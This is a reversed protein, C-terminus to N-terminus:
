RRLLGEVPLAVARPVTFEELVVGQLRQTDVKGRHQCMAHCSVSSGYEGRRRPREYLPDM